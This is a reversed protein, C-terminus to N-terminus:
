SSAGGETLSTIHWQNYWGYIMWSIGEISFIARSKKAGNSTKKRTNRIM